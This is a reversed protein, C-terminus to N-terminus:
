DRLSRNAQERPLQAFLRDIEDLDQFFLWINTLLDHRDAEFVFMHHNRYVVGGAQAQAFQIVAVNTQGVLWDVTQLVEFTGSTASFLRGIHADVEAPGRFVGALPSHGPVTYIVEPALLRLVSASNDTTIGM